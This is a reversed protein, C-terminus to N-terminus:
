RLTRVWTMLQHRFRVLGTEVMGGPDGLREDLRPRARDANRAIAALHAHAGWGPGIRGHGGLADEIWVAGRGGLVPEAVVRRLECEHLDVRGVVRQRTFRLGREP